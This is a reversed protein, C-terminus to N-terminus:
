LNQYVLYHRQAITDLSQEKKLRSIDQRWQRIHVPDSLVSKLGAALASADVISITKGVPYQAFLERFVPLESTVIPLGYSLLKLAAGSQTAALYPLVGIDTAALTAALQEARLWGTWEILHDVRNLKALQKLQEVHRIYKKPAEGIILLRLDPFSPQLQALAEILLDPRKKPVIRGFAVLRTHASVGCVQMDQLYHPIIEIKKPEVTYRVRLDVMHDTTHVILKSALHFLKREWNMYLSDLFNPLKSLFFDPKEHVTLVLPIHLRSMRKAFHMIGPGSSTPTYQIHVVDPQQKSLERALKWWRLQRFPHTSFNVQQADVAINHKKFASILDAAYDSVGDNLSPYSSIFTLRM